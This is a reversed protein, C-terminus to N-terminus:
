GLADYTQLLLTLIDTGTRPAGRRGPSRRASRLARELSRLSKLRQPSRRVIDLTRPLTRIVLEEIRKRSQSM